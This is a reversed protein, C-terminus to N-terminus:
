SAATLIEALGKIRSVTRHFDLHKIWKFLDVKKKRM